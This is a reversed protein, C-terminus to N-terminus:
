PESSDLGSPSSGLTDIRHGTLPHEDDSSKLTAADQQRRSKSEDSRTGNLDGHRAKQSQASDMIETGLDFAIQGLGRLVAGAVVTYDVDVSM